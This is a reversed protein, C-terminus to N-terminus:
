IRQEICNKHVELLQLKVILVGVMLVDGELTEIHGDMLHFEETIQMAVHKLYAEMVGITITITVM